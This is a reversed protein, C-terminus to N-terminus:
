TAAGSDNDEELALAQGGFTSRTAQGDELHKRPHFVLSFVSESDYYCSPGLHPELAAKFEERITDYVELPGEVEEPDTCLLELAVIVTKFGILSQCARFYPAHDTCWILCYYCPFSIRCTNRKTHSANINKFWTESATYDLTCCVCTGIEINQMRDLLQQPPLPTMPYWRQSREGVYVCFLSGEYMIDMAEQCIVKSTLLLSIEAWFLRRKKTGIYGSWFLGRWHYHTGRFWFLPRDERFVAKGRKWRASRQILYRKCLIERYIQDRIERPLDLFRNQAGAQNPTKRSKKIQRVLSGCIAQM